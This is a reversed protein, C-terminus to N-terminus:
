GRINRSEVLRISPTRPTPSLIHQRPIHNRISSRPGTTTTEEAHHRVRQALENLKHAIAMRTHLIDKLDQDVASARQDMPRRGKDLSPADRGCVCRPASPVASSVLLDAMLACCLGVLGYSAWLPSAWPGHLVHVVMPLLLLSTMLAMALGISARMILTIVKQRELQIEDRALRVTQGILSRM